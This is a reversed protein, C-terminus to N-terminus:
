SHQFTKIFSVFVKGYPSLSHRVERGDYKKDVLGAQALRRAHESVTKFNGNVGEAIEELTIGDRDAILLIIDIRWHNAVGKIHREIQKATKDRKEFRKM